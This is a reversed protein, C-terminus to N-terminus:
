SQTEWDWVATDMCERLLDPGNQGSRQKKVLVISASSDNTSMTVEQEGKVKLQTSQTVLGAVNTARCTYEGVHSYDVSSIILMSTRTGLMTTTISPGSNVEQGNLSWTITVPMEGHSIICTLHAFAGFDAIDSGFSFPVIKPPELVISASSDNTSMTVEQEGPIETEMVTTGCVSELLSVRREMEETVQELHVIREKDEMHEQQLVEVQEQLQILQSGLTSLQSGLMSLQVSMSSSGPDGGVCDGGPNVPIFSKRSTDM